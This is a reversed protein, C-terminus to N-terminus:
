SDWPPLMLALYALDATDANQLWLAAPLHLHLALGRAEAQSMELQSTIQLTFLQGSSGKRERGIVGGKWYIFYMYVCMCM